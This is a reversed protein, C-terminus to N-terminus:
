EQPSAVVPDHNAALSESTIGAKSWLLPEHRRKRYRDSTVSIAGRSCRPIVPASQADKVPSTESSGLAHLRM